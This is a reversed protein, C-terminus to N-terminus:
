GQQTVGIPGGRPPPTGPEQLKQRLWAELDDLQSEVTDTAVFVTEQTYEEVFTAQEENFRKLDRKRANRILKPHQLPRLECQPEGSQESRLIANVACRASENAGEMTALDVNTQVYDSALFLNVLCEKALDPAASPRHAWTGRKNILLQEVNGAVVGNEDFKIAPDLVADVYEVNGLEKKADDNLHLKIQNWVEKKIEDATCERATKGNLGATHWDSVDVSLIDQVGGKGLHGTRWFQGQSISTLAWKSEIYITHGDIIKAPEPLYFMVGNMWDEALDDLGGLRPDAVKMEKTVLCKMVGAPLAAIYYDAEIQEPAGHKDSVTVSEICGPGCNFGTVTAGMHFTVPKKNRSRDELELFRRWPDIWAVNTPGNLVRDLHREPLSVDYSIQLLMSGATRASLQRAQAAVMTRTIGDALYTRYATSAKEARIFDWWSRREYDRILREECSLALEAVFFCFRLLRRRGIGLKQAFTYLFYLSRRLEGWSDPAGAPVSFEAGCRAIQMEAGRVLNDFVSGGDGRPIEKMTEPLHHYFGPFFRFGHEAPLGLRAAKGSGPAPFSRAKGGLANCEYVHVDFGRTCLEHAASLGGVGGGLIAVRKTM